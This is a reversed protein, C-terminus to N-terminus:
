RLGIVKLNEKPEVDVSKSQVRTRLVAGVKIVCRRRLCVNM